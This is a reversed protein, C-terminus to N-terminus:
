RLRLLRKLRHRAYTLRKRVLVSHALLARAIDFRSFARRNAFVADASHRAYITFGLFAFGNATLFDRLEAFLPQGSYVEEFEVEVHALKVDAIRPGLGRLAALEAGQIDMWLLDVERLGTEELFSQLTVAEVEVERQVYKELTFGPAARYLSSAGPNTAPDVPYFKVRGPHESAAREILQVGAMGAVAARCAPLTDPNCEFAYIRAAPFATRFGLTERCDRAGVEVITAVREGLLDRALAAFRVQNREL